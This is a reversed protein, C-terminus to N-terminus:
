CGPGTGQTRYLTYGDRTRLLLRGDRAWDAPPEEALRFAVYDAEESLNAPSTPRRPEGFSVRLRRADVYYRAMPPVNVVRCGSPLQNLARALAPLGGLQMRLKTEGDLFPGALLVWKHEVAARLSLPLALAAVVVVVRAAWRVRGPTVALGSKQALEALMLAAMAALVPLILLLFRADYSALWWWAALFPAVVAMCLGWPARGGEGFGRRAWVLHTLGYALAATFFWGPPVFRRRPDAMVLLARPTRDALYTWITDPVVVGFTVLNRVYWPGATLLTVGALLALQRVVAGRCAPQGRWLRAAGVLALTVGLTLAANKTWMALGATLGALAASRADSERWWRWAHLTALGMYFGAPADVYGTTAWISFVPTLAVLAAAGAGAAAGHFARALAGACGIAAVGLIAAITRALQENPGGYAWFGYAYAMPVLMPYAEYLGEGAPLRGSEYLEKALPAYVALADGAAFPWYAADFLIAVGAVTAVLTLPLVLAERGAAPRSAVPHPPPVRRALWAGTGGILAIGLLAGLGASGGPVLVLGWFMALTLGGVSLGLTTLARALRSEGADPMLWRTWGYACSTGLALALLAAPWGM